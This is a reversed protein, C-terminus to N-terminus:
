RGRRQRLDEGALVVLVPQGDAQQRALRSRLRGDTYREAFQAKTVNGALLTAKGANYRDLVLDLVTAPKDETGVEDVALLDVRVLRERTERMASHDVRGPLDPAAVHRATYGHHTVAWGLAVSKGTGVPGLVVLVLPQRVGRVGRWQLAQQVAVVAQTTAPDWEAAFDLVGREAPVGREVAQERVRQREIAELARRGADQRDALDGAALKARYGDGISVIRALSARQREVEELEEPSADEAFKHEHKTM